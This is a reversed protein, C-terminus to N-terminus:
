CLSQLSSRTHSKMDVAFRTKTAHVVDPVPRSMRDHGVWSPRVHHMSSSHTTRQANHTTEQKVPSPRRAAVADLLSPGKRRM